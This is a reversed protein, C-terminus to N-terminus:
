LGECHDQDEVRVRETASHTGPSPVLGWLTTANLSVTAQVMCVGNDESISTSISVGTWGMADFQDQIAAETDAAADGTDSDTAAGIRMGERMAHLMSLQNSYYWSWDIIAATIMLLVPVILAFEVAQAGRRARRIVNRPRAM